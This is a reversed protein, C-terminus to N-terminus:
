EREEEAKLAEPVTTMQERKDMDEKHLRKCEEGVWRRYEETEEKLLDRAVQGRFALSFEENLGSSPWRVAFTEQIHDPKLSMYLQWKALQRPNTTTAHRKLASLIQTWPNHVKRVRAGELYRM